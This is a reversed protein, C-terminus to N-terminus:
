FFKEHLFFEKKTKRSHFNSDNEIGQADFSHTTILDVSFFSLGLVKLSKL